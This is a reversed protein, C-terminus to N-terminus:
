PRHEMEHVIYQYLNRAEKDSLSQPSFTPMMGTEGDRGAPHRVFALFDNFNDTKGSNLLPRGPDVINGGKPHCGGCHNNFVQMGARYKEAVQSRHDGYVLNGGFYGLVVVVMFSALYNVLVWRSEVGKRLGLFISSVVLIILVVALVLKLRIAFIWEGAYFHQWDMIGFLITPLLFIGALVTCHHATRALVPKRFRSALVGFILAGVILGIPMHVETPHIPHPYGHQALFRYAADFM